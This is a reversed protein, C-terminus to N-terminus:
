QPILRPRAPAAPHASGVVVSFSTGGSLASAHAASRAAMSISDPDFDGIPVGNALTGSFRVTGFNTLPLVGRSSSPAEVVAEASLLRATPAEQVTAFSASTTRDLLTLTFRGAGDAVVTATISDGPHVDLPVPIPYDPYLECWAGYSAQGSACNASTGTQEVTGSGDGDLGVWFSAYTTATGCRAAPQVWTSTVATFRSRTAAYGSWNASVSNRVVARGTEEASRRAEASKATAAVLVLALLLVTPVKRM